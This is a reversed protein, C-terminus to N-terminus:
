FWGTRGKRVKKQFDSFRDTGQIDIRKIEYRNELRERPTLRNGIRFAARIGYKNLAKHLQDPPKPRAGFPYALVKLYPVGWSQLLEEEKKLDEIVDTESLDRYNPHKHSHLAVEMGADCWKKLDAISLYPSSPDEERQQIYQSTLFLCARLNKRLLVPLVEDVLSRYGDDFTLLVAKQPLPEKINENEHFNILSQMSVTQYGSFCLWRMQMLFDDKHVNLIDKKEASIEHYMLIPIGKPNKRNLEHLKLYKITSYWASLLCWLFGYYGDLFGLQFLYRRFFLFPFRGLAFVPHTKRGKNYLDQAGLSTYRNFKKFYDDLSLYSYHLVPARLSSMASTTEIREHVINSNMQARRRDFFRLPRGKTGSFTLVFELFVLKQNIDYAAYNNISNSNLLAELENRFEPTILEDSDLNLIWDHSAKSIAFQKQPGFGDFDRFFLKASTRECLDELEKSRHSTVVIIEDCWAMAEIVREFLLSYEHALFVVSIPHLHKKM